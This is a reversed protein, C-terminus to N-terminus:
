LFKEFVKTDEFPGVLTLRLKNATVHKKLWSNIDERKLKDIGNLVEEPSKLKSDFLAQKAYWIAVAASDEFQLALKGRYYEKAQKFEAVSIGRTLKDWEKKVLKLALPLRETDVGARVQWNAVDEYLNVGSNVYYGLGNRERVTTFLRSSMTGGFAINAIKAKTFNRHGYSLPVPLGMVLHAQETKKYQIDIAKKPPLSKVQQPKNSKNKRKKSFLKKIQKDTDEPVAGAISLVLNDPSYYKKHFAVIDSRTIGMVSKKSGIIFRGLPHTGYLQQEFYEDTMYMPTDEYMNIEGIIVGKEREIEEAPYLPAFTMDALLDLALSLHAADVKIWYGTYDKSTMANYEAGVGDLVKAIAQTSPYKKTGKFALHEVFHAIGAVRKQENRSGTKSFIMATVARTSKQPVVVVRLGNSLTEQKYM